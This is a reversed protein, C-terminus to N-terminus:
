VNTSLHWSDLSEALDLCCCGNENQQLMTFWSASCPFLGEDKVVFMDVFSHTPLLWELSYATQDRRDDAARVHVRHSVFSQWVSPMFERHATSDFADGLITAKTTIVLMPHVLLVRRIERVVAEWIKDLSFGKRVNGVLNHVFSASSARDVWHFAGINDIMLCHVGGGDGHVGNVVKQIWNRLTKVTGLLEFSDYCRVYLFRRLCSAHLEEDDCAAGGRNAEVIRDRLVKSLRLVDFRCDLDVFIVARGLGGYSVGKWDLPLICDVAAHILIHTKASPSTGAIEVVNGVRLQLRHLPPRFLFPPSKTLVRTLMQKATEDEEIWFRAAEMSESRSNQTPNWGGNPHTSVQFRSM